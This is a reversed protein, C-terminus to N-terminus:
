VSASRQRRVASVPLRWLWLTGIISEIVVLVFAMRPGLGAAHADAALIIPATIIPALIQPVASALNWVSMASAMATDPLIGVALAWDATIFAGWSGGALIATVLVFAYDYATILVHAGSFMLLAASTMAVAVTVIIRKDGRNTPGASLVAGAIGAITFALFILAADRRPDPSRLSDAIYFFLFNLMTYSGLNIFARSLVLTLVNPTLTLRETVVAHPRLGRAHSVTLAATATLIAILAAALARFDRVFGAMVVGVTNGIFQYVSLWSSATGTREPEIYDPIVAQYPGVAVNMWVQLLVFAAALQWYAPALFLWALTPVACATGAVYFELRHGVKGRRADAFPGVTIQVVAAVAAGGAALIAFNRLGNEHGLELSRAQLAISLIAGWVVQIGFWFVGLVGANAGRAPGSM